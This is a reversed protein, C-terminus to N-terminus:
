PADGEIVTRCGSAASRHVAELFAMYGLGTPFDTLTGRRGAGSPASSTSRQPGAPATRTASPRRDRARDGHALEIRQAGLDVVLSGTTGHFTAHDSAIGNTRASMEVTATVDDPYEVLALVHDPVDAAIPGPPGPREAPGLRTVATVAEPQGLWRTMAEALIGLAMINEGSTSRQWRWFDGPDGPASSDWGVQVHRVRGIAGDRFLRVITGDAWASFSAPM